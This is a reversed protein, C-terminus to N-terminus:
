PQIKKTFETPSHIVIFRFSNTTLFNSRKMGGEECVWVVVVVRQFRLTNWRFRSIKKQVCSNNLKNTHASFEYESFFARNTDNNASEFGGCM